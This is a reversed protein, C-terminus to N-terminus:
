STVVLFWFLFLTFKLKQMLFGSDIILIVTKNWNRNHVLEWNEYFVILIIVKDISQFYGLLCAFDNQIELRWTKGTELTALRTVGKRPRGKQPQSLFFNQCEACEASIPSLLFFSFQEPKDSLKLFIYYLLLCGVALFSRDTVSTKPFIPTSNKFLCLCRKVNVIIM